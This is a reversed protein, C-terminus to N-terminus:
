SSLSFFDPQERVISPRIQDLADRSSKCKTDYEPTRLLMRQRQVQHQDIASATVGGREDIETSRYTAAGCRHDIMSDDPMVRAVTKNEVLQGYRRTFRLKRGLMSIAVAMCDSVISFLTM